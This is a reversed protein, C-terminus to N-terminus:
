PGAPEIVAPAELDRDARGPEGSRQWLQARADLLRRLAEREADTRPVLREIEQLGDLLEDRMLRDNRHPNAIGWISGLAPLLGPGAASRLAAGALPHRRLALALDGFWKLDDIHALVAPAAAALGALDGLEALGLLRLMEARPPPPEARM